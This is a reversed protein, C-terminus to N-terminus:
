SINEKHIKRYLEEINILEITRILPGVPLYTACERIYLERIDGRIAGYRKGLHGEEWEELCYEPNFSMIVTEMSVEMWITLKSLAGRALAVRKCISLVELWYLFLGDIFEQVLELLENDYQVTSLHDMWFYCSYSIHLPVNKEIRSNLDSVEENRIHSSNLGCINFRLQKKMMELCALALKRNAHELNISFNSSKETSSLLFDVFSQHNFRLINESNLVPRLRNTISELTQRSTKPLFEMISSHSLPIRAAIITGVVERFSETTQADPNPFSIRLITSYLEPMNTNNGELVTNLRKVPDVQDIFKVVTKAWLFLGGAKKALLNISEPGPWGRDLSEHQVTISTFLHELFKKIDKFSTGLPDMPIAISHPRIEKFIREIDSEERSTVILKFKKPLKSWLKLTGLLKRRQSSKTGELGGCEDLADIVVVPLRDETLNRINELPKRILDKFLKEVESQNSYDGKRLNEVVIARLSTYRRSLDLAIKKWISYTATSAHKERRFFFYSGPRGSKQLRSVVTSAIASKGAGPYGRIWLINPAELNQTWGEIEELIEERTGELCNEHQYDEDLAPSYLKKLIEEEEPSALFSTMLIIAILATELFFSRDAGELLQNIIQELEQVIKTYNPDHRSSFKNM